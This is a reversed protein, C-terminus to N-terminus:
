VEFHSANTTTQPFGDSCWTAVLCSNMKYGFDLFAGGQRWEKM